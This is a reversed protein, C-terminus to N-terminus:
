NRIDTFDSDRLERAFATVDNGGRAWDAGIRERLSGHGTGRGQGSVSQKANRKGNGARALPARDFSLRPQPRPLREGTAADELAGQPTRRAQERPGLTGSLGALRQVIADLMEAQSTLEQSAAATEEANAASSQTAQNLQTAALTVQEVGESQTESATTIRGMLENVQQISQRISGFAAEVEAAAAVGADAKGQSSDVLEGTSRAAEASRHALNRVEEAVVAFGKGAEGARAAEVAANLSLLNTQFAIDNITRLIKATENAAAKIETITTVMGQVARTGDTAQALASNSLGDAERTSETNQRTMGAIEELTSTTEELNAAQESAGAALAQSSASVQASAASLSSSAAQLALVVEGISRRISRNLWWLAGVSLTLAFLIVGALVIRLQFRFTADERAIRNYERTGEQHLQDMVPEMAQSAASLARKEQELRQAAAAYQHFATGYARLQTEIEAKAAAPLKAADLRSAFHRAEEDLQKGYREHGRLIFDKEHRRMALMSATLAIQDHQKLTSEITHVAKRLSGQLGENETLGLEMSSAVMQDFATRYTGLGAQLEGVRRMEADTLPLQQMARFVAALRDANARAQEAYKADSRLLFDKEGRRTQLLTEKASTAQVYVAAAVAQRASSVDRRWEGLSVVVAVLLSMAAVTVSALVMKQGDTLKSRKM